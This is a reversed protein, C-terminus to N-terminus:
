LFNSKVKMPSIARSTELPRFTDADNIKMKDRLQLKLFYVFMKFIESCFFWNWLLLLPITNSIVLHTCVVVVCM